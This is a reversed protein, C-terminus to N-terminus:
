FRTLLGKRGRACLFGPERMLKEYGEPDAQRFEETPRAELLRELTFGAQLLPNVVAGLPRRYWKIRPFPEGFGHWEMELPEVDFYNGQPFTKFDLAPHACSFVLSGGPRLVRYFEAFAGGWHELYDLVLACLVLDFTEDDAFPLPQTLDALFVEARDGLRRRTLDVFAPTVDAAVVRAGRDALWEAWIGPGCGADLVRKGNVDPLLSQTAPREYFANHPKTPALAAYREAFQEYNRRGLPEDTM